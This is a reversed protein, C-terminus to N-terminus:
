IGSSRHDKPKQIGPVSNGERILEKNSLVQGKINRTKRYINNMKKPQVIKM